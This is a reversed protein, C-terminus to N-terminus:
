SEQGCLFIGAEDAKEKMKEPFLVLTKGAQFALGKFNAEILADVTQPGIVPLDLKEDQGEKAYKVYVARPEEKRQLEACRRICADTGEAAEVGLILGNQIALGQGFDLPSLLKLIKAGKEIDKRSEQDPFNKGLVGAEARIYPLIEQPSSMKFGEEELFSSITTLIKNDGTWSRGIRSLLKWGKQDMKLNKLSPRSIKGGGAMMISSVHHTRLLALGKGVEGFYLWAHPIKEILQPDTHGHYALAFIKQGKRLCEDIVLRPIAGTGVIIGLVETM